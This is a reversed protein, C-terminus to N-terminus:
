IETRGNKVGGKTHIKIQLKEGASKEALILTRAERYGLRM